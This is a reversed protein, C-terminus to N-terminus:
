RSRAQTHMPRRCCACGAKEGCAAYKTGRRYNYVYKFGDKLTDGHACRERDPLGESGPPFYTCQLSESEQTSPSPANHNSRSANVACAPLAQGSDAASSLTCPTRTCRSYRRLAIPLDNFARPNWSLFMRAGGSPPRMADGHVTMEDESSTSSGSSSSYYRWGAGRCDSVQAAQTAQADVNEVGATKHSGPGLKNLDHVDQSLKVCQKIFHNAFCCSLMHPASALLEESLIAQDWAAISRNAVRKALAITVPNSRIYVLGFNLLAEDRMGAVDKGTAELAPVPNDVMRRDADLVLIHLGRSLLLLLAQTKLIHTQRWGSMKRACFQPEARWLAAWRPLAIPELLKAHVDNLPLLASPAALHICPFSAFDRASEALSHAAELYHRSTAVTLVATRSVECSRAAM